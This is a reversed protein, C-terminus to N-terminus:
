RYRGDRRLDNRCDASTAKLTTSNIRRGLGHFFVAMWIKLAIAALMIIITAAAFEMAAPSIIREISSKALELGIALILTAVVFGSVYEYRAHGYPHHADAPRQAMRFGWFTVASSSADSLNNMADAVISVSGTLLGAVLKGLFLLANCVIGVIGALKGTAAHIAADDACNDNRIFLRLLLKTM